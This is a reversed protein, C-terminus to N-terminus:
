MMLLSKTELLNSNWFFVLAQHRHVLMEFAVKDGAQSKQVLESNSTDENFNNIKTVNNM